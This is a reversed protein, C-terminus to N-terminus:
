VLDSDGPHPRYTRPDFGSAIMLAPNWPPIGRNYDWVTPKPDPLPLQTCVREDRCIRSHHRWTEDAEFQRFKVYLVIGVVLVPGIIEIIM